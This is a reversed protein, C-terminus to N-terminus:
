LLVPKSLVPPQNSGRVDCGYTLIDCVLLTDEDAYIGLFNEQVACNTRRTSCTPTDASTLRSLPTLPAETYDLKDPMVATCSLQLEPFEPQLDSDTDSPAAMGRPQTTDLSCDSTTRELLMTCMVAHPSSDAAVMEGMLSARDPMMSAKQCFRVAEPMSSIRIGQELNPATNSKTKCEDVRGSACAWQPIVEAPRSSFSVVRPRAQM